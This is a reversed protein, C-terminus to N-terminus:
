GNRSPRKKGEHLNLIVQEGYYQLIVKKPHIETIVYEGLYDGINYKEAKRGRQTADNIIATASNGVLITGFLELKLPKQPKKPTDQDKASADKGEIKIEKRDNLLRAQM